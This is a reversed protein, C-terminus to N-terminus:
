TQGEFNKKAKKLKKQSRQHGLLGTLHLFMNSCYKMGFLKQQRYEM